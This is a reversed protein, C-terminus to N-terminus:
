ESQKAFFATAKKLIDREMRLQANERRLTHLEGREDETLREAPEPRLENIWEHLSKATIGLNAAIETIPRDTTQVLRVAEAKFEPTYRKRRRVPNM